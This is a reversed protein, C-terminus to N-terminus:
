TLCLDSLGIDTAHGPTRPDLGILNECIRNSLITPVAVGIATTATQTRTFVIHRTKSAVLCFMRIIDLQLQRSCLRLSMCVFLSLSFCTHTIFSHSAHKDDIPQTLLSIVVTVAVVVAFLVIAFHLYHVRKIIAPRADNEGCSAATYANEWAIRTIGM